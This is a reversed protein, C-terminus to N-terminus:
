AQVTLNSPVSRYVFQIFTCNNTLTVFRYLIQYLHKTKSASIGPLTQKCRSTVGELQYKIYCLYFYHLLVFINLYNNRSLTKWIFYQKGNHFRCSYYFKIYFKIIHIESAKYCSPSICLIMQSRFDFCVIKVWNDNDSKLNWKLSSHPIKSPFLYSFERGSFTLCGM